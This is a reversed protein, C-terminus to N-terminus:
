RTMVGGLYVFGVLGCRRRRAAARPLPLLPVAQQVGRARGRRERSRVDVALFGLSLGRPAARTCAMAARRHPAMAHLRGLRHRFPPALRRRLVCLPPATHQAHRHGLGLSRPHPQVAAELRGRMRRPARCQLAGVHQAEGQLQLQPQARVLLAEVAHVAVHMHDRLPAPQPEPHQACRAQPQHGHAEAEARSPQQEALGAGGRQQQRRWEVRQRLEARGAESRLERRRMATGQAGRREDRQQQQADRRAHIFVEKCKGKCGRGVGGDCGECGKGM